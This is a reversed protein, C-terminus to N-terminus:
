GNKDIYQKKIHDLGDFLTYEPVSRLFKFLSLKSNFSAFDDDNNLRSSFSLVSSSELIMKLYLVVDKIKYLKEEAVHFEVYQDKIIDSNKQIKYILSSIAKSADKIYIFNRKEKGDSLEIKKNKILSDFLFPIFKNNNKEFGYLHFIKLNIFSLRTRKSLIKAWNILQNKPYNTFLYNKLWWTIIAPTFVIM